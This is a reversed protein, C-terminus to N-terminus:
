FGMRTGADDRQFKARVRAIVEHPVFSELPENASELGGL